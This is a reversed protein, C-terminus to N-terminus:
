VSEKRAFQTVIAHTRMLVRRAFQAKSEESGRPTVETMVYSIVNEPLRKLGLSAASDLAQDRIVKASDAHDRLVLSLQQVRADTVLSGSRPELNLPVYFEDGDAVPPYGVLARAENKMTLGSQLERTARESRETIRMQVALVDSLDGRVRVARSGFRRVMYHTYSSDRQKTLPDTNEEHMAQRAQDYNSYTANELGLATGVVIPPVNMATLIRTEESKRLDNLGVERSGAALGLRTLTGKQGSLVALKWANQVGGINNAWEQQLQKVQENSLKAEALLLHPPVAGLRFFEKIYLTINIDAEVSDLCAAIPGMGWDPLDPDPAYTRHIIREKPFRVAGEPIRNLLAPAPGGRNKTPDYLYEIIRNTKEDRRVWVNRTPLLRFEGLVEGREPEMEAIIANGTVVLETDARKRFTMADEDDNPYDLREQVPDSDPQIQWRGNVLRETVFPIVSSGSVTEMVAAFVIENNAYYDWFVELNRQAVTQYGFVGGVIAGMTRRRALAYNSIASTLGSLPNRM